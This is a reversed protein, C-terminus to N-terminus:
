IKGLNLWRILQGLVLNDTDRNYIIGPFLHGLGCGLNGAGYKEQDQFSNLNHLHRHHDDVSETYAM